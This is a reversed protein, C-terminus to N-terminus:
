KGTSGFGGGRDVIDLVEVMQVQPREVNLFLVQVIRHGAKWEFKQATSNWLVVGWENRYYPDIVGAFRHIGKNGMGSRDMLIGAYGPTFASAFGLKVLKRQLPDLFGDEPVYLDFGVAEPDVLVGEENVGRTPARFNPHLAKVHFYM